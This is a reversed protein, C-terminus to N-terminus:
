TNLGNRAPRIIGLEQPVDRVSRLPRVTPFRKLVPTTRVNLIAGVFGCEAAVGQELDSESDGIKAVKTPDTVGARNMLVRIMEPDPRGRHVEDSAVSDDIKDKWGLREIITDLTARDFGTDLTVGIGSDRLSRFVDSAGAMERVHPSSRYHAVIRRQFEAHVSDIEEDTPDVGGRNAALLVRIAVPKPIGMVPDVDRLGVTAGADALAECLRAAVANDTDEVTTGAVDFVVMSYNM